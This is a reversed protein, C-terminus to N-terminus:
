QTGPYRNYDLILRRSFGTPINDTAPSEFASAVLYEFDEERMAAATAVCSDIIVLVDISAMLQQGELLTWPLTMAGPALSGSNVM